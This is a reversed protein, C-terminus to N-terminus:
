GFRIQEPILRTIKVHKIIFEGAKITNFIELAETALVEAM